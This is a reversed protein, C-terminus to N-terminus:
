TISHILNKLGTKWDQIQIGEVKSIKDTNLKSFKPRIARTPYEDTPIGEIKTHVGAIKLSQNALDFWSIIGKSTFNYVGTQKQNIMTITAKVLENAFTPSGWQDNVVRLHRGQMGLDLMTKVFNHGYKGCLWSFRFILFDCGSAIVENEGLLKSEGYINVPDKRHDETYGEKYLFRDEELGPYVYDTSFHVLKVHYQKCLRALNRVAVHNVQFAMHQDDEAKDVGTYAACNIIYTPREYSIMQELDSKSTIDLKSSNFASFSYNNSELYDCFERGLQGSSGLVIVHM